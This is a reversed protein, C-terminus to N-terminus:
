DCFEVSVGDSFNFGAGVTDRHWFSFYWTEGNSIQGSPFQPNAIDLAQSFFGFQDTQGVPLRFFNGGVCRVGNGVMVNAQADGYYFLGFQNTPLGVATLSANNDSANQSGLFLITSAIGTSNPLASCYNSPPACLDGFGFVEVDDIAAEVISGTGLDSASFRMRMTASPSIVSAVDLQKLFWGGNSETGGPGVNEANVWTAGDDNSIDIDFVDANPAGGTNNSYWRWYSIYPTDVLSLDFSPSVLSTTGGDVDNEGLSGNVSGQGTFWCNTGAGPTHDDESQAATGRPNAKTWIGTTANNPTGLAWGENGTAEFDYSAVPVKGVIFSKPSGADGHDGNNGASDQGELYWDVFGNTAGFSPISATYTNGATNSMPVQTYSGGDIRYFMDASVVPPNFLATVDSSVMFPGAGSAQDGLDTVNAFDVFVLDFGPFGQELFGDDINPYNPTGNNINGDDDDLTLWQTEILSTITSQNYSNMWGIFLSNATQSGLAAGLTNKLNRRIKWAAGMWVEGDAHVGGYCGGNGDGCYQRTNLGSRINGGSTFFGQGILPTEYTYMGFVDANGEGMGDSGNGTGYLVNLWHGYEHAVVTSFATNACNGGASFFNISNGNYFANCTDAINANSTALFDAHTDAPNTDRIMDGTVGVHQYANAQATIPNNPGPNMVLNTPSNAPVGPFTVSYDAGTDNFVRNYTGRYTATIDLPTNVGPFNFNGDRDTFVTGASSTIRIYSMDIEVEPNSSSDAASGPTALSKITGTVDVYHIEEDRRLLQGTHADIVYGYGLPAFGELERHVSVKYALFPLRVGDREVQAIFLEAESVDLENLGIERRFLNTAARVASDAGISPTTSLGDTFPSTTNHLSLLTGETSYLANIKANEVPLGNVEQTLRVTFKDSGNGLGLPLFSVRENVLQGGDAGHMSATEDIWFRTLNFWQENDSSSPQIIAAASGGYIMEARLTSRDPAVHWNPGHASQWQDMLQNLDPAAQPLEDQNAQALVPTSLAFALLGLSLKM